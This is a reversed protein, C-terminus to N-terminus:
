PLTHEIVKTKLNNNDVDITAYVTWGKYNPTLDKRSNENEFCFYYRNCDERQETAWFSTSIKIKIYEIGYIDILALVAKAYMTEKSKM